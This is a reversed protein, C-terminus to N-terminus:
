IRVSRKHKEKCHKMLDVKSDLKWGCIYCIMSKEEPEEEPGHYQYIHEGMDLLDKAPYRCFECELSTQTASDTTKAKKAETDLHLVQQKLTAIIEVNSKNQVLLKDYKIKLEKFELVLQEQTEIKASKKQTEKVNSVVKRKTARNKVPSKMKHTKFQKYDSFASTVGLFDKTLKLSNITKTFLLLM